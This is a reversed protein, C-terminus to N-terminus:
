TVDDAGRKIDEVEMRELVPLWHPWWTDGDTPVILDPERIPALDGHLMPERKFWTWSCRGELGEILRPVTIVQVKCDYHWLVGALAGWAWWARLSEWQQDTIGGKGQELRGRDTRKAEVVVHRGRCVGHFDLFPSRKMIVRGGVVATPPDVKEIKARETALYAACSRAVAAEYEKGRNKSM